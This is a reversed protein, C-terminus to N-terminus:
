MISDTMSMISALGHMCVKKDGALNGEGWGEGAMPPVVLLKSNEVHNFRGLVYNNVIWAYMRKQKGSVVEVGGCGVGGWGVRHPDVM